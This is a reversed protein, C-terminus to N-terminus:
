YKDRTNTYMINLECTKEQNNHNDQIIFILYFIFTAFCIMFQSKSNLLCM